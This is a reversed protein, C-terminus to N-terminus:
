ALAREETRENVLFHTFALSYCFCCLVIDSRVTLSSTSYGLFGKGNEKWGREFFFFDLSRFNFSAENRLDEERHPFNM